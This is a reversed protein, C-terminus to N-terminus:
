VVGFGIIVAVFISVVLSVVSISQQGYNTLYDLM